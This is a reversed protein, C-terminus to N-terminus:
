SRRYSFPGLNLFLNNIDDRTFYPYRLTIKVSYFKGKFTEMSTTIVQTSLVCTVVPIIQLQLKTLLIIITQLRVTLAVLQTLQNMRASHDALPAM